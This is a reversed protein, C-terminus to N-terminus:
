ATITKKTEVEYLDSEEFNISKLIEMVLSKIEFNEHHMHELLFPKDSNEHVNEMMKLFTIQEELSRENFSNKLINKAELINLHSLASITNIRVEESKHNLLKILEDKAEFQNYLKALKLTFNVVSDNSSKLWPKIDAIQSDNNLQLIELLQIQDWESLPTELVNLFELGKFAYLHVLYLQMEKRVEKTPHNINNLILKNVGMIKFQTLERIGIAIVDWKKDRLKALSYRLLGMKVFLKDISEGMEGSIENRLKLLTSIIIKRKFPDVISEKLESIILLQEPSFAEEENGSYLYTVLCSEYEEQYKAEIKANVRLHNRLRKVYLILLVIILFFIGSLWWSLVIIPSSDNSSELLHLNENM